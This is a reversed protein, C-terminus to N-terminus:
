GKDYIAFRSDLADLAHWLTPWLSRVKDMVKAHEEPCRGVNTRAEAVRRAARVVCKADEAGKSANEVGAAYAEDLRSKIGEALSMHDDSREGLVGWAEALIRRLRQEELLREKEQECMWCM